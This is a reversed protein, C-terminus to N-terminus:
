LSNDLTKFYAFIFFILINTFIKNQFIFSGNFIWFHAKSIKLILLLVSLTPRIEPSINIQMERYYELVKKM